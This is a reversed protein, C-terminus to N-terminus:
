LRGLEKLLVNPFDFTMGDVGADIVDRMMATNKVGCARVFLGSSHWKDVLQGTIKEARPCLNQVHAQIVEEVCKDSVNATIYGVRAFPRKEKLAHVMSFDQATFTIRHLLNLQDVM